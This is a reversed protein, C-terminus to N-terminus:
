MAWDSILVELIDDCSKILTGREPYAKKAIQVVDVVGCALAKQRANALNMKARGDEQLVNTLMIVGQHIVEAEKTHQKLADVTVDLGSLDVFEKKNPPHQYTLNSTAWFCWKVMNPNRSFVQLHSVIAEFAGRDGFRTQVAECDSALLGLCMFIKYGHHGYKSDRVYQVIESEIVRFDRQNFEDIDKIENEDGKNYQHANTATHKIMAEQRIYEMSNVICDMISAVSARLMVNDSQIHKRVAPHNFLEIIINMTCPFQQKSPNIGELAKFLYDVINLKCAEMAMNSNKQIRKHIAKLLNISDEDEKPIDLKALLISVTDDEYKSLDDVFAFSILDWLRSTLDKKNRDKTEDMSITGYIIMLVFVVLGIVVIAAGDAKYSNLFAYMMALPLMAAFIQGWTLRFKLERRTTDVM